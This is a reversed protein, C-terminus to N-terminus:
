EQVIPNGHKGNAWIGLYGDFHSNDGYYCVSPLGKRMETRPDPRHLIWKM